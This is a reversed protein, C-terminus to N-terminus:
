SSSQLIYSYVSYYQYHAEKNNLSKTQQVGEKSGMDWISVLDIVGKMDLISLATQWIESKNTSEKGEDTLDAL